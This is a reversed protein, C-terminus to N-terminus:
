LLPSSTDYREDANTWYRWFKCGTCECRKTRRTRGVSKM